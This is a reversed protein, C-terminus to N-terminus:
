EKTGQLQRVNMAVIKKRIAELKGKEYAHDKIPTFVCKKEGEIKGLMWRAKHECLFYEKSADIENINRTVCVDNIEYSKLISKMDKEQYMYEEDKHNYLYDGKQKMLEKTHGM